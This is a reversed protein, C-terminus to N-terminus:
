IKGKNIKHFIVKCPPLSDNAPPEEFATAQKGISGGLIIGDNAGIETKKEDCHEDVTANNDKGDIRVLESDTKNQAQDLKEFVPCINDVDQTSGDNKGNNPVAGDNTGSVNSDVSFLSIFLMFIKM